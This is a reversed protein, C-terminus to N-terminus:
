GSHALSAQGRSQKPAGYWKPWLEWLPLSTHEAIAEEVKRSRTHGSIVRSVVTTSVGVERAIDAQTLYREPSKSLLVKRIAAQIDRQHVAQEKNPTDIASNLLGFM